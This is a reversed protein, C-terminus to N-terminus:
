RAEREAVLYVASRRGPEGSRPRLERQVEAVLEARDAATLGPANRTLWNDLRWSQRDAWGTADSEDDARAVIRFGHAALLALDRDLAAADYRQRPRASPGPPLEVGPVRARVLAAVDAWSAAGAAGASGTRLRVDFSFRGGPVLARELGGILREHDTLFNQWASTSVVHDVPRDILDAVAYGDGEVIRVNPLGATEREAIAVMAPSADIGVVGGEAGVAASLRRTLLGPGCCLDVVRDGHAIGALPLLRESVREVRDPRRAAFEAAFAPDDFDSFWVAM